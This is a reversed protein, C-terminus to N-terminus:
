RMDLQCKTRHVNDGSVKVTDSTGAAVRLGASHRVRTSPSCRVAEAKM